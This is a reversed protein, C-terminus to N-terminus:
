KAVKEPNAEVKTAKEDELYGEFEANQLEPECCTLPVEIALAEAPRIYVTEGDVDVFSIVEDDELGRDLYFFLSQLQSSGDDDDEPSKRDPEVEFPIPDKSAILHLSLELKEPEEKAFDVVGFDFLFQTAAIKRLNLAVRHTDSTFVVFQGEGDGVLRELRAKEDSPVQYFFVRGDHAIFKITWTAPDPDIGAEVFQEPKLVYRSAALGKIKREGAMFPFVDALQAGLATTIRTALELRVGQIGAEIRQVQQQSTGALDALARQTLGRSKRLQSIRNKFV